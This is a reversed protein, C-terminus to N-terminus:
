WAVVPRLNELCCINESVHCQHGVQEARRELLPRSDLGIQGLEPNQSALREALDFFRCPSSNELWDTVYTDEDTIAAWGVAHPVVGLLFHVIYNGRSEVFFCIKALPPRLLLQLPPRFEGKGRKGEEGQLSKKEPTLPPRCSVQPPCGQLRQSQAAVQQALEPKGELM